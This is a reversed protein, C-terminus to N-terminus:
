ELTVVRVVILKYTRESDRLIFDEVRLINALTDFKSELDGRCYITVKDPIGYEGSAHIKAIIGENSNWVLCRQDGDFEEVITTSFTSECDTKFKDLLVKLLFLYSEDYHMSEMKKVPEKKTPEKEKGVTLFLIYLTSFFKRVASFM